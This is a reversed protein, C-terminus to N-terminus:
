AGGGAQNGNSEAQRLLNAVQTAKQMLEEATKVIESVPQNEAVGNKLQELVLQTSDLKYKAEANNSVAEALEQHGGDLESVLSDVARWNPGDTAVLQNCARHAAVRQALVAQEHARRAWRGEETGNADLLSLYVKEARDRLEFYQPLLERANQTNTDKEVALKKFPLWTAEFEAMAARPADAKVSQRLQKHKKEILRVSANFRELVQSRKSPGMHCYSAVMRHVLMRQDLAVHMTDKVSLGAAHVPAAMLGVLGFLAALHRTTRKIMPKQREKASLSQMGTGQLRRGDTDDAAHVTGWGETMGMGM